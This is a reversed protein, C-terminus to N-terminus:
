DAYSAVPNFSKLTGVTEAMFSDRTPSEVAPTDMPPNTSSAMAFWWRDGGLDAARPRKSWEPQMCRVVFARPTAGVKPLESQLSQDTANAIHMMTAYQNEFRSFPPRGCLMEIVCCGLSWIDSEFSHGTGKIVEPAMFCATGTVSAALTRLEKSAGFDALKVVGDATVLLNDGKIDRHAIGMAHLYSLGRVVQITYKRAMDETIGPNGYERVIQAISGGSVYELYILLAGGSGGLDAGLYRVINEHQLREMLRIERLIQATQRNHGSMDQGPVVEKVAVIQNSTEDIGRYVSAFSGKGILTKSGVRIRWTGKRRAPSAGALAAAASRHKAGHTPSELHDDSPTRVPSRSPTLSCHADEEDSVECDAGPSQAAPAFRSSEEPITCLLNEGLDRHVRRQPPSLVRVERPRGNPQELRAAGGSGPRAAVTHPRLDVPSPPSVPFAGAQVPTTHPRPKRGSGGTAQGSKVVRQSGTQPARKAPSDSSSPPPPWVLVSSANGSGGSGSSSTTPAPGLM